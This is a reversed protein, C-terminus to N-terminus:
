RKKLLESLSVFEIGDEKFKPIYEALADSTFKRQVHGIAIGTGFKLARRRLKELQRCIAKYEDKTDLFVQNSLAPIGLERAVEEGVSHRSTKSDFFFLGERKLVSLAEVMKERNATFRSGEHNSVGSVGPVTKLDRLITSEIQSSGMSVLLVGSGPDTQSYGEPEMPLHLITEYGSNKLERALLTSYPLQPLIAFNLPIDLRLFNKVLDKRQGLDDIVISVRYKALPYRLLLNQMVLSRKGIKMSLLDGKDSLEVEYLEARIQRLSDALSKQYDEMDIERSVQVEKTVSVWSVNDKKKEERYIKILDKPTVGLKVLEENVVADIQQSLNTYDVPRIKFYYYLAGALALTIIIFVAIKKSKIKKRPVKKSKKKKRPV